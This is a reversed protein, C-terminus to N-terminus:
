ASYRVLNQPNLSFYSQDIISSNVRDNKLTNTQKRNLPTM